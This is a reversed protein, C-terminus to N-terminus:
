VDRPTLTIRRAFYDIRVIQGEEDGEAGDALRSVLDACSGRRVALGFGSATPWRTQVTAITVMPSGALLFETYTRAHMCVHTCTSGDRIKKDARSAGRMRMPAPSTKSKQFKHTWDPRASILPRPSPSKREKKRDLVRRRPFVPLHHSETANLRSIESTWRSLCLRM